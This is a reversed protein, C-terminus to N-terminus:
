HPKWAVLTQQILIELDRRKAGGRALTVMGAIIASIFIPLKRASGASLEGAAVSRRCLREINALYKANAVALANDLAEDTGMLEITADCRLCGAPGASSTLRDASAALIASLAARGNPEAMLVADIRASFRDGYLDLCRIFLARKDGFVEYVSARPMGTAAVIDDLSTGRFGKRWFLMLAADLAKDQDFSRPRGRRATRQESIKSGNM